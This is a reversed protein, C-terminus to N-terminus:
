YLGFLDVNLNVSAPCDRPSRWRRARHESVGGIAERLARLIAWISNCAQETKIKSPSKGSHVTRQASGCTCPIEGSLPPLLNNNKYRLSSSGWM